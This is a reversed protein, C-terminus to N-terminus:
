RLLQLLNNPLQNAQALMSLSAQQLVNAMTFRMMERAMDANRVRSEADSLNESSISLSRATHELRNQYAGATARMSSVRELANDLRQLSANAEAPPQTRINSIGLSAARADFRRVLVSQEANPGVQLHVPNPQFEDQGFPVLVLPPVNADQGALDSVSLQFTILASGGANSMAVHWDGAVSTNTIEFREQHPPAVISNIGSYFIREASAASYTVLNSGSNSSWLGGQGWGFNHGQPCRIVLDPWNGTVGTTQVQIVFSAGVPATIFGWPNLTVNGAQHPNMTVSVSGATVLGESPIILLPITNYQTRYALDTIEMILQDIEDQIMRRDSETYTDNLAQVILERKRIIMASIQDLGGEMTQVLAIGDQTNRWAQDLGRIQARMSESIALGAADDAASNVRYGSSLRNAARNKEIGVNKMNRHANLSFVNTRVVMNSM